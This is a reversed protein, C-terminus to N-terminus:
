KKGIMSQTFFRSVRNAPIWATKVLYCCRAVAYFRRRVSTKTAPKGSSISCSSRPKGEAAVAAYWCFNRMVWLAM